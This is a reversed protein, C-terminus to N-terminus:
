PSGLKHESYPWLINTFSSIVQGGGLRHGPLQRQCPTGVSPYSALVDSFIDLFHIGPAGWPQSQLVIARSRAM